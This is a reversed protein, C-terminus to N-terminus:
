TKWNTENYKNNTNRCSECYSHTRKEELNIFCVFLFSYKRKSVRHSDAGILCDLIIISQPCHPLVHYPARTKRGPNFRFHRQRTWRESSGNQAKGCARRRPPGTEAKQAKVAKNKANWLFSNHIRLAKMGGLRAASGWPTLASIKLLKAHWLNTVM